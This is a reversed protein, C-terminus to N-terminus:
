PAHMRVAIGDFREVTQYAVPLSRPACSQKGYRIRITPTRERKASALCSGIGIERGQQENTGLPCVPSEPPISFVGLLERDSSSRRLWDPMQSLTERDSEFPSPDPRARLAGRIVCLGPVSAARDPNGILSV